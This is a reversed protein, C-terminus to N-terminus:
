ASAYVNSLVEHAEPMPSKRAFLLAEEIESKIENEWTQFEAQTLEGTEILQRRLNEIPCLAM